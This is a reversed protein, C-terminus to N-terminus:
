GLMLAMAGMGVAMVISCGSGLAPATCQSGL